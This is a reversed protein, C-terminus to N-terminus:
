IGYHPNISLKTHGKWKGHVVFESGPIQASIQEFSIHNQKFRKPCHDVHNNEAFNDCTMKKDIDDLIAQDFEFDEIAFDDVFIETNERPVNPLCDNSKNSDHGSNLPVDQKANKPEQAIPKKNGTKKTKLLNEIRLHPELMNLNAIVGGLITVNQSDLLLVGRRVTANTLQVKTGIPTVISLFPIKKYEMGIITQIGDTLIVKLMKRPYSPEMNKTRIEHIYDMMHQTSFGVETIEMIQFMNPSNVTYLHAASLVPLSSQIVFERLDSYLLQNWIGEFVPQHQQSIYKVCQELWDQDVLVGKEKLRGIM